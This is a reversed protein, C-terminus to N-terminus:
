ISQESFDSYFIGCILSSISFDIPLKKNLVRAVLANRTEDAQKKNRLILFVNAKSQGVSTEKGCDIRYNCREQALISHEQIIM